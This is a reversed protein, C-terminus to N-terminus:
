PQRHVLASPNVRYVAYRGEVHILELPSATSRAHRDDTENPSEAIVYEAGQRTALAARQADSLSQYRAEFEHRHGVYAHVFEEPTGHYDVHDAFRAFWDALGAGHYPSGSRNFALSRRAWLRFTKPGPPGIFRTRPSTHDRCWLALREIDDLPFPYFRCRDVLGRVAALRSAPHQPPILAALLALTPCIWAVGFAVARRRHTKGEDPPWLRSLSGHRWFGTGATIGLGLAALLPGHGSETDHHALFKLGLALMAGFVLKDVAHPIWRGGTKQRIAEFTSVALEVCAVVVLLWDGLCGATLIAARARDLIGGSRWLRAIRDSVVVICIGRVVTAMRFPQLITIQVSRRVEIAYWAAGLGILITGLVIALRRRPAMSALIPGDDSYEDGGTRQGPRGPEVLQLGALALYSFWALWQPMRWLHPLMHQPNQLEVSLIWFLSTPLDGLLTAAQPLNVFLGPMVALGLAVLGRIATAVSVQSAGSLLAWALWSSGFVMALQLGVSPHIVTAVAVAISSRWWGSEPRTVADAIALWGLALAVLRDLVMAEFLHNTGINGAKAGLFLCVAVWGARTGFPPRAAKTLRMVAWCTGLFTFAFVLFLGAPLGLPRSIADLLALSGRHPNFEDLSRVFPDQAYLGPDQRHLLLPLRYAQDGDFSHYGRFSLYIGLLFLYPFWPGPIRDSARRIADTLSKAV